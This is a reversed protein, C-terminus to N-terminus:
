NRSLLTWAISVNLKIKNLVVYFIYLQVASAVSFFISSVDGGKRIRCFEPIHAADQASSTMQFKLM